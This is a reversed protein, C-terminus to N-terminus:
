VTNQAKDEMDTQELAPLVFPEIADFFLQSANPDLKASTLQIVNDTIRQDGKAQEELQSQDKPQEETGNHQSGQGKLQQKLKDRRTKDELNNVYELACLTVLM